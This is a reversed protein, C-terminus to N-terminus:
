FTEGDHSVTEFPRIQCFLCIIKQLKTRCKANTIWERIFPPTPM